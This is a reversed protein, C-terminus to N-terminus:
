GHNVGLALRFTKESQKIERCMGILIHTLGAGANKLGQEEMIPGASVLLFEIIGLANELGDLANRISEPDPRNDPPNKAHEM